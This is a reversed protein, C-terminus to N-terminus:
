WNAHSSIASGEPKYDTPPLGGGQASHRVIQTEACIWSATFGKSFLFGPTSSCGTTGISERQCAWITLTVRTSQSCKCTLESQRGASSCHSQWTIRPPCRISGPHRIGSPHNENRLPVSCYLTITYQAKLIACLKFEILQKSWSNEHTVKPSNNATIALVTFACNYIPLSSSQLSLVMHQALTEMSVTSNSGRVHARLARSGAKGGHTWMWLLIAPDYLEIRNLKRFVNQVSIKM